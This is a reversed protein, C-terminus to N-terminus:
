KFIENVEQLAPIVSYNVSVGFKLCYKIILDKSDMHPTHKEFERIDDYINPFQEKFKIWNM